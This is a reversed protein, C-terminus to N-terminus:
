TAPMISEAPHVAARALDAKLYYRYGVLVLAAAVAVSVYLGGFVAGLGFDDKLYGTLLVGLAGAMCNASNSVGVATSWVRSPLVDCVIVNDTSSGLSRFFAFFLIAVSAVTLSPNRMFATLFPIACAFCLFQFLMRRERQAGAFRDSFFGGALSASTAAVQLGVTGALGAATLSLGFSEKFYLPLWVLFIWAGAAIFTSELLVITFTPVAFLTRLAELPRSPAPRDRRAEAARKPLIAQAVIALLV